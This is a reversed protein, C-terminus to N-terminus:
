ALNSLRLLLYAVPIGILHSDIRDLVGGHGPLFVGADKVGVWRKVLSEFLDGVQAAFAVAVGFAIAALGHLPTGVTADLITATIGTVTAALVLGGIAGEITKDPSVEPSLPTRGWTRGAVFGGVDSAVIALISLLAAGFGVSPLERLDIAFSLFMPIWAFGLLTYAATSLANRHPQRSTMAVIALLFALLLVERSWLFREPVIQLTHGAPIASILLLPITLLLTTRYVLIGRLRLMSAYELVAVVTLLLLVPVVLPTGVWVITLLAVFALLGSAVRSWLPWGDHRPRSM